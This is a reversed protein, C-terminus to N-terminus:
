EVAPLAGYVPDRVDIADIAPLRGRLTTRALEDMSHREWYITHEIMQRITWADEAMPADLAADPLGILSAMLEARARLTEAAMRDVRSFQMQKQNYRATYVQGVHMREHDVNHALLDQASGGMACIHGSSEDLEADRLASLIQLTQGLSRQLLSILEDVQTGM